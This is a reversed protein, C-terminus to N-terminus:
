GSARERQARRAAAAAEFEAKRGALDAIGPMNWPAAREDSFSLGPRDPTAGTITLCFPRVYEISRDATLRFPQDHGPYIVDALSVARDISAVAQDPDWFVLPNARTLAVHAYHLADGTILSLGDSNEVTIGVSGVTHGALDVVRVGPILEDGDEIERIDMRELIDGTWAPTAWDERHPSHAYHREDPHVFLPAHDFVDINQVHDWHAHTLVVMDIDAPGLGRAALAEWLFTRRGVHAPDVLIRTPRQAADTGEILLVSCLATLGLNTNVGYGDLLVEIAPGPATSM